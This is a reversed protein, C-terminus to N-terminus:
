RSGATAPAPPAYTRWTELDREDAKRGVRTVTDVDPSQARLAAVTCQERPRTAFPDFQFARMANLHFIKDAQEDTLEEMLGGPSSGACTILIDVGGLRDITQATVREVDEQVSMDGPLPVVVGGTEAAIETATQELADRTRATIAVNCGEEALLHASARGIGQSAGTILVNKGSLGLDMHRWELVPYSLHYVM